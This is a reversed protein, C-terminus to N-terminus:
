GDADEYEKNWNMKEKSKYYEFLYDENENNCACIYMCFSSGSM